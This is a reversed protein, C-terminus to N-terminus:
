KFKPEQNKSTHKKDRKRKSMSLRESTSDEASGYSDCHSNVKLNHSVSILNTQDNSEHKVPMLKDKWYDHDEETSIYENNQYNNHNM